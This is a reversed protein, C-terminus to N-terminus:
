QVVTNQQALESCSLISTHGETWQSNKFLDYGCVSGFDTKVLHLNRISGEKVNLTAQQPTIALGTQTTKIQTYAFAVVLFLVVIGAIFVNRPKVFLGLYHDEKQAQKQKSVKKIKKMYINTKVRYLAKREKNTTM